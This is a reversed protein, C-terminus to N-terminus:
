RMSLRTRILEQHSNAPMGLFYIYDSQDAYLLMSRPVPAIRTDTLARGAGDHIRLYFVKHPGFETQELHAWEVLFSGGQLVVVYAVEDRVNRMIPQVDSSPPELRLERVLRGGSEFMRIIRLSLLVHCLLGDYFFLQGARATGERRLMLQGPSEDVSRAEEAAPCSSFAASRTGQRSYKHVLLCPSLPHYLSNLDIGLVFLNGADDVVAEKRTVGKRQRIKYLEEIYYTLRPSASPEVVLVDELQLHLEAMKARIRANDGLLIPRAIEEDVLIQCARLIKSEEGEPFVVRRPKSQAKRIM